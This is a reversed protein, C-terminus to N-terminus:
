VLGHEYAYATAAARSSLGVKTYINQLHRRVTHESLVLEAAIERNTKGTAVLGLVQIERASLVTATREGPGALKEIRALDPGADLEEFVQRAAAWELSAGTANGLRAYATGILTRARAVEYPVELEWWRTTATRLVAAAAAPDGEALLVAGRASEAVAQLYPSDFDTALLDLEAAAIRAADIEGAALMIEVCAALLKSRATRGQAEAMAHRIAAQAEDPKGQALQLLALGPHVSHAWTSARRYYEEAGPYEGRLRHLEAQQYLAMGLVPDGREGSLHECARRVESMAAVWNGHLQMIESRHVLCQGRYPQLGQHRECWRDLAATWQQARRLDFIDRCSVITACYIIGAPIPSVDGTTVAVMAEDLMTVGPELEGLAVLAQGCGLRSLAVLDPDDFRDAIRAVDRFVEHAAAPEGAYLAQVAPPLRVYGQEACELGSEDLARQARALWGGGPAHQGSQMLIMGLWWACRVARPVDGDDLFGHHAREWAESSAEDAGLLFAAVALRELDAPALPAARDAATFHEYADPWAYREFAARAQEIAETTTVPGGRESASAV